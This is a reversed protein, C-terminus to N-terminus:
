RFHHCKYGADLFSVYNMLNKARGAARQYIDLRAPLAVFVCRSTRTDVPISWLSLPLGSSQSDSVVEGEYGVNSIGMNCLMSTRTGTQRDDYWYTMFLKYANNILFGPLM